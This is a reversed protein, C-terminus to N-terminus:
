QSAAQLLIWQLWTNVITSIKWHCSIEITGIDTIWTSDSSRTHSLQATLILRCHFDFNVGDFRSGSRVYYYREYNSIRVQPMNMDDIFYVMTKNGPPGYNRGAKKELPKELIKQLMESVSIAYWLRLKWNKGDFLVTSFCYIVITIFIYINMILHHM